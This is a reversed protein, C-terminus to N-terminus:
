KFHISTTQQQYVALFAAILSSDNLWARLFSFVLFHLDLFNVSGRLHSFILRYNLNRLSPINLIGPHPM